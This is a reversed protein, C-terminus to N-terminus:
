QPRRPSRRPASCRSCAGTGRRGCRACTLARPPAPSSARRRSRRTTRRPTPCRWTSVAHQALWARYRAPRLPSEYFLANRGVDLQREWGRALAVHSAVFRAEAHDRTAVVEIRAPRQGYGVGLDRLEALLPAYYGRDVSPNSVASSFDSLPANVQWYLLFPALVALLGARKPLLVLAAVPGAILAGLRDANGGVASPIAYAAALMAAYLLAGILLVRRTRDADADPDAPAERVILTAIVLVGALAPWFSSGAFPQTGGEPFALQSCRSRRWRRPAGAGAGWAVARTFASSAGLRAARARSVRGRRSEALSTTLALALALGRRRRRVALLCGLGLALGLDFPVRNALLRGLRGRRLWDRRWAPRRAAAFLGAILRAFLATAAVM